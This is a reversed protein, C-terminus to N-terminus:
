TDRGGDTKIFPQYKYVNIIRFPGQDSKENTVSFLSFLDELCIVLPSDSSVFFLGSILRLVIPNTHQCRPMEVRSNCIGLLTKFGQCQLLIGFFLIGEFKFFIVYIITKRGLASVFLDSEM